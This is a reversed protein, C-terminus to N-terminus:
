VIYEALDIGAKKAEEIIEMESAREIKELDIVALPSVNFLATGYYDKLDRRLRDIDITVEMDTKDTMDLVEKFCDIITGHAITMWSVMTRMTMIM